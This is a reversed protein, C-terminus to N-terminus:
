KMRATPGWIHWSGPPWMTGNAPTTWPPPPRTSRRHGFTVDAMTRIGEALHCSRSTLLWRISVALALQEGATLRPVWLGLDRTAAQEAQKGPRNTDGELRAYDLHGGGWPLATGPPPGIPESATNTAEEVRANEGQAGRKDTTRDAAGSATAHGEGAATVQGLATYHRQLHAQPLATLPTDEAQDRRPEPQVRPAAPAPVTHPDGM